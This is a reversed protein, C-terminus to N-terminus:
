PTERPKLRTRSVIEVEGSGPRITVRMGPLYRKCADAVRVMPINRELAVQALHALAGGTETIVARAVTLQEIRSPDLDPLVAIEQGIIGTVDRGEVLVTADFNGLRHQLEGMAEVAADHLEGSYAEDLRRGAGLIWDTHNPDDLSLKLGSPSVAVWPAALHKLSTRGLAWQEFPARPVTVTQGSKLHLEFTDAGAQKCVQRVIESLRQVCALDREAEEAAWASAAERKTEREAEREDEERVRTEIDGFRARYSEEHLKRGVQQFEKLADDPTLTEDWWFPREGVAEFIIFQGHLKRGRGVEIIREGAAAYFGVRERWWQRLTEVGEAMTQSPAADPDVPPLVPLKKSALKADEPGFDIVKARPRWWSGDIRVRGAYIYKLTKRYGKASDRVLRMGDASNGVLKLNGDLVKTVFSEPSVPGHIKSLIRYARSPDGSLCLNRAISTIGEGDVSFHAISAVASV